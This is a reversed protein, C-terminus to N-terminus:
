HRVANVSEWCECATRSEDGRLLRGEYHDAGAVPVWGSLSMPYAPDDASVWVGNVRRALHVHSADSVGGECSPHGIRDGAEVQTGAEVRGQGAIHMYLIVWGTGTFGDGDLDQLVMGDDSVVILGDAVATVWRQSVACGIYREDTVFDVASLAGLTGWGPHPGGTYYWVEDEAWPLRLEPSATEPPLLPEVAYDEAPGYLSAYIERFDSLDALWTEYSRSTDAVMKQIGATGANLDASLQIFAGDATQILWLTDLWWGYAGANLANAALCLQRYLGQWYVGRDYGLPYQRQAPAPDADSLWGGRLELLSLLVRPGVSYQEAVLEIIQVATLERGDVLETYGSILGPHRGIDAALDYDIYGPGYVLESDPLLREDPGTNEAEMSVKLVQGVALRDPDALGNLHMLSEVTTGYAGAIRLLTDGARVTYTTATTEPPVRTPTATPPVLAAGAPRQIAGASGGSPRSSSSGPPGSADLDPILVDRRCGTAALATLM